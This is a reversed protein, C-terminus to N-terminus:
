QIQIRGRRILSLVSSLNRILFREGVREKTLLSPLNM